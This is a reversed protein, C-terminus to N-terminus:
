FTLPLCITKGAYKKNNKVSYALFRELFNSCMELLRKLTQTWQGWWLKAGPGGHSVRM